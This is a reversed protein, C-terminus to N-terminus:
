DKTISILNDPNQSLYNLLQQIEVPSLPIGSEEDLVDTIKVQGSLLKDLLSSGLGDGLKELLNSVETTTTEVVPNEPDDLYFSIIDSFIKDGPVGGFPLASVQLVIEQGPLWERDLLTRLNVSTILGVNKNDILPNGANLAEELSQGKDERIGATVQYSEVGSLADWEALVGGIDQMSGVKPIRITITQAPNLFEYMGSDSGLENGNEDLLYIDLRYEGTPKGRKRNQEILDNNDTPPGLRITTGLDTNYFTKATFTKTNFTYLWEFGSNVDKKWFLEGRIKVNGEEPSIVVAFIRPAGSLDNSLIFAGFELESISSFVQLDVEYQQAKIGAPIIFLLILFYLKKM